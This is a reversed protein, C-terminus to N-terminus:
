EEEVWVEGQPDKAGAPNTGELSLIYSSVNQMQVASLVSEWPIMGKEVVGYKVTSFVNKIGGGNLWYEDTLNPGISGGGDAKHCAACNTQFISNGDALADVDTVYEVTNEDVATGSEVAAALRISAAADAAALENEYEENQLPLIGIGHYAIVYIVGWVISGYFLWKWWPPLHNDLEQIGDYEHALLITGEQELPVSDTAEKTFRDWWSPEPVYEIGSAHSKKAREENLLANVVVLLYMAMVLVIISVLIVSGTLIYFMMETDLLVQDSSQAFLPSAILIFFFALVGKLRVKLPTNTNKQNYSKPTPLIDDDELPLHAMKKVHDKDMYWWWFGMCLFFIFFISLSIIPWVDINDINQLVNKYM